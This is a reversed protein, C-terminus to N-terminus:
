KIIFLKQSARTVAVYRIRNREEINRNAQIDWDQVFVYQYTSGQSKHATICYNYKVNAFEEKLSFFFKWLLSRDKGTANGARKSIENLLSNYAADSDEHVIYITKPMTEGTAVVDAKYLKFTIYRSEAKESLKYAISRKTVGLEKVEMEENTTYIIPREPVGVNIIPTDAILKEGVMIKALNDTGFILKRIAVNLYDVTNNRWAIVKVYDSDTKFEDTCFYQLFLSSLSEMNAPLLEIGTKPCDSFDFHIVPSKFQSRIAAGYRIIPNGAAQRVIKGLTVPYIKYLLQKPGLFPISQVEGVPPIQKDDGLFIIKLGKRLYPLLFRFLESNLMSTEDIILVDLTDIMKQRLLSGDPEFTQKGTYYDKKPKLGLMSHITGFKFQSPDECTSWLVKVAKNTPATMGFKLGPQKEKCYEVLRNILYTKGTGAYGNLLVMAFNDVAYDTAVVTTASGSDHASTQMHCDHESGEYGQGLCYRALPDFAKRQDENLTLLQTM